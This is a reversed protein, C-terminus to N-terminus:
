VRPNDNESRGAAQRLRERLLEETRAVVHTPPPSENLRHRLDAGAMTLIDAVALAPILDLCRSDAPLAQQTFLDFPSLALLHRHRLFRNRVLRGALQRGYCPTLEAILTDM